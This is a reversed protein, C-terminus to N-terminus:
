PKYPTPTYGKAMLTKIGGKLNIVKYGQKSLFDSVATTRNGTRCILAFEKDKTVHKNLEKLFADANYHGQEDFFTIPISNEIIGTEVWEGKTRIDIIKVGSKVFEPTVAMQSLDAFAFSSLFALILGIKKM